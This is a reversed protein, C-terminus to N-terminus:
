TVSIVPTFESHACDNWRISVFCGSSLTVGGSLHFFSDQRDNFKIKKKQRESESDTARVESNGVTTLELQSTWRYLRVDIPRKEQRQTV